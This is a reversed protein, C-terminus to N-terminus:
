RVTVFALRNIGAHKIMALAQAVRGYPVAADADIQVSTMGTMKRNELEQM